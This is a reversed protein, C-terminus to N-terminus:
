IFSIIGMITLNLVVVISKILSQIIENLTLDSIDMDELYKHM